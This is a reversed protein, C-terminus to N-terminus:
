PAGFTLNWSLRLRLTPYNSPDVGPPPTTFLWPHINDGPLPAAGPDAPVRILAGGSTEQALTPSGGANIIFQMTRTGSLSEALSNSLKDFVDGSYPADSILADTGSPPNTGCNSQTSTGSHQKGGPEGPGIFSLALTGDPQSVKRMSADGSGSGSVETTMTQTTTCRSDRTTTKQTTLSHGKATGTAGDKKNALEVSFDRTGSTEWTTLVSTGNSSSQQTRSSGAMEEHITLTGHWGYQCNFYRQQYVPDADLYALQRMLAGLLEGEPDRDDRVCQEYIVRDCNQLIQVVLAQVNTLAGYLPGYTGPATDQPAAGVDQTDEPSGALGLNQVDRSWSTANTFGLEAILCDQTANQLVPLVDENYERTLIDMQLATVQPDPGDGLTSDGLLERQREIALARELADRLQAITPEDVLATNASPVQGNQQAQDILQQLQDPTPVTPQGSDQAQLPPASAIFTMSAVLLSLITRHDRLAHM